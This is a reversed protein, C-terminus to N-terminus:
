ANCFAATAPGDYGGWSWHNVRNDSLLPKTCTKSFLVCNMQGFDRALAAKMIDFSVCGKVQMCASLCTAEGTNGDWLNTTLIPEIGDDNLFCGSGAHVKTVPSPSFSGSTFISGPNTPVVYNEPDKMFKFTESFFNRQQMPQHGGDKYRMFRSQGGDTAIQAEAWGNVVDWEKAAGYMGDNQAQILLTPNVESTSHDQIMKPNIGSVVTFSKFQKTKVPDLANSLVGQAGASYGMLSIDTKSVPYVDTTQLFLLGDKIGMANRGGVVDPAMAVMGQSAYMIVWFKHRVRKRGKGPMMIVGPFGGPPASCTPYGVYATHDKGDHNSYWVDDDLGYGAVEWVWDPNVDVLDKKVLGAFGPDKSTSYTTMQKPQPAVGFYAYYSYLEGKEEEERGKGSRGKGTRAAVEGAEQVGDSNEEKVKHQFQLMADGSKQPSENQCEADGVACTEVSSSQCLWTLRSFFAILALNVVMKAM